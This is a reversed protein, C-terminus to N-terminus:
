TGTTKQQASNEPCRAAGEFRIAAAFSRSQSTNNCVIPHRAEAAMEMVPIVAPPAALAVRMGLNLIAEDHRIVATM